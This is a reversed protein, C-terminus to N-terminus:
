HLATIDKVAVPRHVTFGEGYQFRASRGAEMARSYINDLFQKSAIYTTPETSKPDFFQSGYAKIAEVKKEMHQSIDVVFDPEINMDQIYHYVLRPRWRDQLVGNDRTEIKILGALFCSEAVMKAGRGHDPHRDKIANALVIDPQYKRLMRIVELRSETNDEFHGDALELNERAHIGMIEAAAAAEQDRIEASGRTGLEGRTLDIIGVKHGLEIQNLLTGAASLEVDDPHAGFALIDLKM